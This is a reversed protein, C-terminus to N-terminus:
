SEVEEPRGNFAIWLSVFYEAAFASNYGRGCIGNTRSMNSGFLLVRWSARASMISTRFARRPIKHSKMISSMYMISAAIISAESLKRADAM